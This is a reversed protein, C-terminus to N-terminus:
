EQGPPREFVPRLGPQNASRVQRDHLMRELRRRQRQAESITRSPTTSMATPSFTVAFAQYSLGYASDYPSYTWIEWWYQTNFLFNVPLSTLTYQGVYGLRPDTYWVPCDPDCDEYLNFEYSDAQLGPRPTWSFTEPLNVTSGDAPALLAVNAIDFDGIHVSSGATYADIARTYWNWLRNTQSGSNQYKVFYAETAGLTPRGTFAFYGSANTNTTALEEDVQTSSNFRYLVVPIGSKPVGSEAVCGHIGSPTTPYFTVAYYWFPL